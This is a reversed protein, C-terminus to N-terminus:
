SGPGIQLVQVQLPIQLTISPLTATANIQLYLWNGTTLRTIRTVQLATINSAVTRQQQAKQQLSFTTGYDLRVLNNTQVDRAYGVVDNIGTSTRRGFVLPTSLVPTCTSGDIFSARPDPEYIQDCIRLDRTMWDLGDVVSRTAQTEDTQQQSNRFAIVLARAMLTLFLGMVVMGILVEILTLGARRM